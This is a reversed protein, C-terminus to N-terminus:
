LTGATTGECQNRKRKRSAINSRKVPQIQNGKLRNQREAIWKSAQDVCQCSLRMVEAVDGDKAANSLEELYGTFAVTPDALFNLEIYTYVM